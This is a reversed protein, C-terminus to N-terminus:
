RVLTVMGKNFYPQGRYDTAKVMWIYTNTGQLQGNIRGDWGYGNVSTSFVLQGWRNYINFYDMRQMGAMVPLLRDNRGDSNPTFATPVFITPITAFVKVSVFASDSCGASNYVDVKYRLLDAAERFTAVPNAINNASLSFAPSWLYSEGGSALLQLPQGTIVVTDSGASPIIKPLVTVIITDRAPKPCGRTSEYATFVFATSRPPYALPAQLSANSLYAAPSWSWSNGDTFSHLSAPTNYCIVTDAGAKAIPYPVPTVLIATSATCGGITATVQYQTATATFADPSQVTPNNLQAAPTWAYQLGDSILRLRITDGSCITTDNMPQLSVHDVVRVRVSDRNICGDTNLEVYYLTTAPPSVVPNGINTASIFSSPSWTFIGTGQALLPLQDNLCILTDRFALSIPPKDIISITKSLTDRCGDTTTVILRILKDGTFPYNYSPNQLDSVDSISTPEGFDWNWSNVSGSVVTTEDNFLTTKSICVGTATFNPELGPYVYVKTRDTDSCAQGKNVILQVTYTGNVPFTYQLAANNTTFITTGAPNFVAWDYSVILPSTSRNAITISRTNGCLMYDDELSAAAISCDTINIQLDKRQVAIQIGNRIEAVCVTVVYIGQVPAIGSILGTAPDINVKSGLPSTESFEPYAYPLPSYPPNGAPVGNVGGTTSMYAGCFSYILKDNDADEAGFSYSFYNDACVVVLDSGTFHAGHNVADTEAPIDCTYTAGVQSGASLNNIGRIRYNVECAIIYGQASAPLNVTFYYYAVEYCVDPPNTICPDQNTLSITERSSIQVSIDQVRANNTKNFVSMVAPDPFQRGSNCRMFLKLTVRYTYVGNSNGAYTYYMEGGTIHDAWAILSSTTLLM